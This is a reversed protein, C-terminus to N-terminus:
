FWMKMEKDLLDNVERRLMQAQFNIGTNLAVLKAQALLKQKHQLEKWICGFHKSSWKKLALGCDDM